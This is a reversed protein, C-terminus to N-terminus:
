ECCLARRNDLNTNTHSDLIADHKQLTANSALLKRLLMRCYSSTSLGEAEALTEVEKKHKQGIYIEVRSSNIIKNM